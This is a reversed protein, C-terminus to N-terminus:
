HIFVGNMKIALYYEMTQSYNMKKIWEDASCKQQKQRNAIIVLVTTCTWTCAKSHVHECKGQSYTPIPNSLWVNVRNWWGPVSEKRASSSEPKDHVKGKGWGKEQGQSWVNEWSVFSSPPSTQSNNFNHNGWVEETSSATFYLMHAWSRVPVLVYVCRLYVTVRLTM